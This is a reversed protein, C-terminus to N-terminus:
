EEQEHIKKLAQEIRASYDLSEDLQFSIEPSHRLRIRRGIEKRLYGSAHKLADLTNKKQADTGFVSVVIRAYHLDPSVVVHTITVFGIRPDKLEELLIQGMEHRILEGIREKRDGQM